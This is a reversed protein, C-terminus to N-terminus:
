RREAGYESLNSPADNDHLLAVTVIHEHVFLSKPVTWEFLSRLVITLM